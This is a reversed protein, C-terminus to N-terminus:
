EAKDNKKAVMDVPDNQLKDLWDSVPDVIARIKPNDAYDAVVDLGMNGNGYILFVYGIRRGHEYFIIHEEDTAFLEKMMVEMSDTSGKLELGDGGNHINIRYGARLANGVIKRVINREIRQRLKVNEM